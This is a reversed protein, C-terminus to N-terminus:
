CCACARPRGVSWNSAPTCRRSGVEDLAAGASKSTMLEAYRPELAGDAAVVRDRYLAALGPMCRCVQAPAPVLRGRAHWRQVRAVAQSLFARRCITRRGSMARWDRCVTRGDPLCPMQRRVRCLRRNPLRSRDGSNRTFSKFHHDDDPPDGDYLWEPSPDLSVRRRPMRGNKPSPVEALKRSAHQRGPSHGDAASRARAMTGSRRRYRVRAPARDSYPRSTSGLTVATDPQVTM